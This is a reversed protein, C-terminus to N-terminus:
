IGRREPLRSKLVAAVVPVAVLPFLVSWALWAWLTGGVVRGAFYAALAMLWAFVGSAAALWESRRRDAAAEMEAAVLVSTRAALGPPIEPPPLAGLDGSLGALAELAGACEACERVHDRVAREEAPELLGAASLALWERITQHSNM